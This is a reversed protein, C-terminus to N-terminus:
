LTGFKLEGCKLVLEVQLAEDRDMSTKLQAVEDVQEGDLDISKSGKVHTVYLRRYNKKPSSPSGEGKEKITRSRGRLDQMKAGRPLTFSSASRVRGNVIDTSANEEDEEPKMADGAPISIVNMKGTKVVVSSNKEKKEMQRSIDLGASRRKVNDKKKEKFAGRSTKRREVVVTKAESENNKEYQIGKQINRDSQKKAEDDSNKRESHDVLFPSRKDIKHIVQPKKEAEKTNKVKSVHDKIRDSVRSPSPSIPTKKVPTSTKNESQLNAFKSAMQAAIGQRVGIPKKVSPRDDPTGPTSRGSSGDASPMTPPRGDSSPTRSGSTPTGRGSDPTRSGASSPTSPTLNGSNAVFRSTVPQGHLVIKEEDKSKNWNGARIVIPATKPSENELKLQLTTRSNKDSVSSPLNADCKSDEDTLLSEHSKVKKASEFKRGVVPSGEQSNSRWLAADASGFRNREIGGSEFREKVKAFSGSRKENRLELSISRPAKSKVKQLRDAKVGQIEDETSSQRSTKSDRSSERSLRTDERSSRTEVSSKRSSTNSSVISDAVASVDNSGPNLPVDKDSKEDDTSINENKKVENIEMTFGKDEDSSVTPPSNTSAEVLENTSGEDKNSALEKVSEATFDKGELDGLESTKKTGEGISEEREQKNVKIEQKDVKVEEKDQQSKMEDHDSSSAPLNLDEGHESGAEAILETDGEKTEESNEQQHDDGNEEAGSDSHEEESPSESESEEDEDEDSDEEELSNLDLTKSKLDNPNITDAKIAAAIDEATVGDEMQKLWPHELSERASM